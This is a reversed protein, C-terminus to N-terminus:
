FPDNNVELWFNDPDQFYIQQVGDPRPTTKREEGNWSGYHVHAQDLHDSFKKLDKVSFALHTNKDHTDVGAAGQIVHLQSHPGIRFWVHRGDKFPEPIEPLQMVDRYFAASKRLDAVYLATHNLTPAEQAVANGSLTWALM